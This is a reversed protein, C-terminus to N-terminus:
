AGSVTSASGSGSDRTAAPCSQVLAVRTSRNSSAAVQSAPMADPPLQGVLEVELLEAIGLKASPEPVRGVRRASADGLDALRVLPVLGLPGLEALM